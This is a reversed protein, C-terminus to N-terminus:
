CALCISYDIDLVESIVTWLAPSFRQTLTSVKKLKLQVSKLTFSAFADNLDDMSFDTAFEVKGPEASVAGDFVDEDWESKPLGLVNRWIWKKQSRLSFRDPGITERRWAYLPSSFGV